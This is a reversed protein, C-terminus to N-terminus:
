AWNKTHYKEWLERVKRYYFYDRKNMKIYDTSRNEAYGVHVHPVQGHHLHDLDIQREVKGNKDYFSIAKVNGKSDITAYVRGKDASMTELPANPAGSNRLIFKINDVTMVSRYEQGYKIGQASVGSAAGRGGM